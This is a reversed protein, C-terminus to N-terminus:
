DPLGHGPPMSSTPACGPTCATPASSSMGEVERGDDLQLVITEAANEAPVAARPLICQAPSAAGRSGAPREHFDGRHVMWYPAGFRERCDRGLDFLNWTEGTNWLRIEKGAPEAVVGRMAEGLGLGILIRSGNPGLQIGAGLEHLEEAQEFVDM